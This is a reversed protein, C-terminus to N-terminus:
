ILDLQEAQTCFEHISRLPFELSVFLGDSWLYNLYLLFLFRSIILSSEICHESSPLYGRKNNNSSRVAENQVM